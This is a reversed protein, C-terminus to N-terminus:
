GECYKKSKSSIFISSKEVNRLIIYYTDLQGIHVLPGCHVLVWWHVLMSSHHVSLIRKEMGTLYWGSKKRKGKSLGKEARIESKQAVKNEGRGGGLKKNKNQAKSVKGAWV